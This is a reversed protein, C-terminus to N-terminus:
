KKEDKAKDVSSKTANEIEMRINFRDANMRPDRMTSSAFEVKAFYKSAELKPILETAAGAYGEIDVSTATVRVRSVWATKPLITTLEKIIDLTMIRDDKFNNILAIEAGLSEAEKKLAEVKMAEEKKPRIQNSIQQLKIEEVRLPAVLYFICIGAIALMLLVTLALPTRKKEHRGKNLLNLGNAEAWLSQIVGGVAAFPVEKPPTRLGMGIETEGMIRVPLDLKSSLLEGTGPSKDKLLAVVQPAKGQNKETNIISTMESSIKDIKTIDDLGTLTDSFIHAPLGNRFLGGEYGKENIEVFLTDSKRDVYKCFAGIASLNVTVRSVTFGKDKLIDVYPRIQDAKAAMLLLSISEGKDALMRYDFLAEAATFPTLRDLEYSLVDPINEKVTSPFDVTRIVTWAKPISLTIGSSIAKLENVLSLSYLLDEPQPYRDEEFSYHKVGTISIRSLFRSGYAISITGKDLAASLNNQLAIMDDAPSFALIRRVPRVAAWARSLTAGMDSAASTMKTAITM